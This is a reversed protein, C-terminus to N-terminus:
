TEAPWRLLYPTNDVHDPAILDEFFVLIRNLGGSAGLGNGTIFFAAFLVLGLMTGAVYPHAFPKAERPQRRKFNRSCYDNIRGGDSEPESSHVEVEDWGVIMSKIGAM